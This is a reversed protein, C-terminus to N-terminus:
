GIQIHYSAQIMIYFHIMQFDLIVLYIPEGKRPCLSM